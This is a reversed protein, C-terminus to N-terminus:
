RNFVIFVRLVKCGEEPNVAVDELMELFDTKKVNIKSKQKLSNTSKPIEKLKFYFYWRM